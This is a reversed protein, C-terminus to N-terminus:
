RCLIEYKQMRWLEVILVLLMGLTYMLIDMWSFSTGMIIRAVASRELGLLNVLHFYQSIEVIYAFLLVGLITPSVPTDIFSKVMCYILIVVLFDGGFPRIFSDHVWTGIVIETVLLLLVLSFYKSNFSLM